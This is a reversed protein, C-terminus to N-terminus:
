LGKKTVKQSRLMTKGLIKKLSGTNLFNLVKKFFSIM